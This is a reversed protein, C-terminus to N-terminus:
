DAGKFNCLVRRKRYLQWRYKSDSARGKRTGASWFVEWYCFSYRTPGIIWAWNSHFSSNHYYENLRRSDHSWCIHPSTLHHHPREPARFAKSRSQADNEHEPLSSHSYVSNIQILFAYLVVSVSPCKSILYSNGGDLAFTSAFAFGCCITPINTLIPYSLMSASSLSLRKRITYIMSM